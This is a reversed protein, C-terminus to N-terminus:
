EWKCLALGEQSALNLMVDEQGGHDSQKCHVTATIEVTLGFTRKCNAVVCTNANNSNIQFSKITLPLVEKVMVVSGQM